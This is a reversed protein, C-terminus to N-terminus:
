KWKIFEAITYGEYFSDDLYSQELKYFLDVDMEESWVDFDLYKSEKYKIKINYDKLIFKRDKNKRVIEILLNKNVEYEKNEFFIKPGKETPYLAFFTNEDHFYFGTFSGKYVKGKYFEKEGTLINLACFSHIECNSLEIITKMDVNDRIIDAGLSESRRWNWKLEELDKITISSSEEITIEELDTTIEGDNNNISYFCIVVVFVIFLWANPLYKRYIKSKNM